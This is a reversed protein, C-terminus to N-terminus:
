SNQLHKLRHQNFSLYNLITDNMAANSRHNHKKESYSIDNPQKPIPSSIRQISHKSTEMYAINLFHIYKINTKAHKNQKLKRGLRQEPALAWPLFARSLKRHAVYICSRIWRCKSSRSPLYYTIHIDSIHIIM